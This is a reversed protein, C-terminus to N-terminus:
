SVLTFADRKGNGYNLLKIVHAYARQQLVERCSMEPRWEGPAFLCMCGSGYLHVEHSAADRPM